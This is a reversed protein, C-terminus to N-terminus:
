KDGKIYNLKPNEQRENNIKHKKFYEDVLQDGTFGLAVGINIVFHFVDIYEERAKNSMDFKEEPSLSSYDKWSKIYPLERCMEHLEETSWYVQDRIYEAIDKEDMTRFDIGLKNQFSEQSDLLSQIENM